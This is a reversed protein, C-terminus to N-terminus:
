FPPQHGNCARVYRPMIQQESVLKQSKNVLEYNWRDNSLSLSVMNSNSNLNIIKVM